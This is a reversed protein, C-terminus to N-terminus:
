FPIDLRQYQISTDNLLEDMTGPHDQYSLGVGVLFRMDGESPAKGVAEHVFIELLNTINELCLPYERSLM